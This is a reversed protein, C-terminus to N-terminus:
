KFSSYITALEKQDYQKLKEEKLHFVSVSISDTNLNSNIWNCSKAINKIEAEEWRLVDGTYLYNNELNTKVKYLNNELKKFQQTDNLQELTAENWIGNFNNNRYKVAWSFAPFVVDLALPYEKLRKTYEKGVEYSHISNKEDIKKLEGMNYYMLMGRDTPPIGTNKYYKIQHLRITCSIIKSSYNKIKKLLIFYNSKTKHTWDCDIQLQKFNLKNKDSISYVKKVIKNALSDIEVDTKEILSRNTIFVVPIIETISTPLPKSINLVALPIVQNSDGKTDLDFFKIYLTNIKNQSLFELEYANLNLNQQWYYIANTTKVSKNKSCSVAFLCLIFFIYYKLM